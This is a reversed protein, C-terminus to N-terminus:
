LRVGILAGAMLVLALLMLADFGIRILAALRM